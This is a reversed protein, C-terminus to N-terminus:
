FISLKWSSSLCTKVTCKKCHFNRTKEKKEGMYIIEIKKMIEEVAINIGTVVMADKSNDLSFIYLHQKLNLKEM